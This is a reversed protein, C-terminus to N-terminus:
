SSSEVHTAAERNSQSRLESAAGLNRVLVHYFVFASVGCAAIVAAMPLAKGNNLAGVAGATIAALTFQLTGILASATGAKDGHGAMAMATTNPFLCGVSGMYVFILFATAYLGIWGTLTGVLLVLSAAIQ